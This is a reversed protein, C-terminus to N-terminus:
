AGRFRALARTLDMSARKTAASEKRRNIRWYAQAGSAKVNDEIQQVELAAKAARVFRQCEVLAAQLAETQSKRM